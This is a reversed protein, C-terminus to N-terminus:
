FCVKRKNRSARDECERRVNDCIIAGGPSLGGANECHSFKDQLESNSLDKFKSDGCGTLLSIVLIAPTISHYPFSLHKSRNKHRIMM